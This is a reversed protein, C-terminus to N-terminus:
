KYSNISKSVKWNGGENILTVLDTKTFGEFQMTVKALMYDASEEIITTTTKCNLKEGKQRKLFNIVESRSNTKANETQVKQNFDSAFLQEVGVSQGETMVAVYNDIAFDATSLNVIGKEPKEAAMTCTSVVILAAATFTKVLTKM